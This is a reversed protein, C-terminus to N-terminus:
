IREELGHWVRVIIVRQEFLRYRMVYSRARFPIILERYAM